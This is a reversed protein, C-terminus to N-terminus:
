DLKNNLYFGISIQQILTPDTFVAADYLIKTRLSLRVYKLFVYHFANNIDINYSKIKLLSDKDMFVQSFQEMYFNKFLKKTSINVLFHFGFVTKKRRGSNLGYLKTANRESFIDQNKIKTTRGSAIGLEISSYNWFNFRIGGSYITYGPSLYSTYLSKNYKKNSDPKFTYHKWFQSKNSVTFNFAFKSKKIPISLSNKFNYIDETIAVISDQFNRIGFENFFYNTLKVKRFNTRNQVTFNYYFHINNKLIEEQTNKSKTGNLTTYFDTTADILKFNKKISKQKITDNTEALLTNVLIILFLKSYIIWRLISKIKLFIEM